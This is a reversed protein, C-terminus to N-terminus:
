CVPQPPMAQKSPGPPELKVFLGASLSLLVAICFLITGIRVEVSAIGEFKVLVILIALVLVDLLSYKGTFAAIQHLRHRLDASAPIIRSTAVLIMSLKMVPFVVSFAFIVAAILTHGTHYLEAIGELLSVTREDGLATMTMFPKIFAVLLVSLATLALLSAVTNSRRLMPRPSTGCYPCGALVPTSNGLTYARGCRRCTVTRDMPM